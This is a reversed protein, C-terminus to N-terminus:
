EREDLYEVFESWSDDGDDYPEGMESWTEHERDWKYPKEFYYLVESPNDFEEANNLVRGFRLVEAFSEDWDGPAGGSVVRLNQTTTKTSNEVSM